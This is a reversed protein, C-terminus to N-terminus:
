LCVPWTLTSLFTRVWSLKVIYAKKRICLGQFRLKPCFFEQLIFWNNPLIDIWIPSQNWIKINSKIVLWKLLMQRRCNALLENFILTVTRRYSVYALAALEFYKAFSTELFYFFLINYIFFTNSFNKDFKILILDFFLVSLIFSKLFIIM